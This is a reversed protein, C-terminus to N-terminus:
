PKNVVTALSYNGGAALTTVTAGAPLAVKIPTLRDTTTGDGLQGAVNAGWAYATGDSGLALSYLYDASVATAKVGTPLAVTVPTLRETTTGDGLEGDGNLGWAYVTGDSGLALSHWSGAALATVTIGTPIAVPMPTIRDDTTGDGLAGGINSGWAYVTDNSGVALSHYKGAALAKVTVGAPLAVPM